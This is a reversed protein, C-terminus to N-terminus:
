DDFLLGSKNSVIESRLSTLYSNKARQLLTRNNGLEDMRIVTFELLSLHDLGAESLQGTSYEKKDFLFSRTKNDM